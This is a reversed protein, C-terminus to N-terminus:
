KTPIQTDSTKGEAIRVDMGAQALRELYEQPADADTVLIDVEDVTLIRSLSKLGFKTSDLLLVVQEASKAMSRKVQIELPNPDTFGETFTFGTASLFCTQANMRQFFEEAQPGVFTQAVDRLMGGCCYVNMDPLRNSLENMTGLGNGLITLNRQQFYKVMAAVTTGAELFLIDNDAVLTTAAFQAIQEKRQRNLVQKSVFLPESERGKAVRTAGGRIKRLRGENNLATLDRWITMLSVDLQKVLQETTVSGKEEVVELIRSRRLDALLRENVKAKLAVNM